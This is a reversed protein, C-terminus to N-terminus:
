YLRKYSFYILNYFTYVRRKIINTIKFNNPSKFHDGYYYIYSNAEYQLSDAVDSPYNKLMKNLYLNEKQLQKM